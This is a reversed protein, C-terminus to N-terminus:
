YYHSPLLPLYFTRHVDCHCEEILYRTTNVYGKHCAIHLAYLGNRYPRTVWTPDDENISPVSDGYLNRELLAELPGMKDLKARIHRLQEIRERNLAASMPEAVERPELHLPSESPPRWHSDSDSARGGAVRSRRGRGTSTTTSTTTTTTTSSATTATTLAPTTVRRSTSPSSSTTIPLVAGRRPASPSRPSEAEYDSDNSDSDHPSHQQPQQQPRQYGLEVDYNDRGSKATM